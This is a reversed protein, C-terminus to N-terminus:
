KTGIAYLYQQSRLFLRGDAVAPSACFVTGDKLVNERAVKLVKDPEVVFTDGDNRLLLVKGQILVPSAYFYEGKRSVREQYLLTGTKADHCTIFGNRGDGYILYDGVLVGSGVDRTGKRRVEWLLNSKTVDGNGGLRIAQFYGQDRGAPAFMAGQNFVPVPEGFKTPDEDPHRFVHWIEKGTKPDYGWFGQPGNLVLDV